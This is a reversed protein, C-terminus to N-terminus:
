PSPVIRKSPIEELRGSQVLAQHIMATVEARTAPQNPKLSSLNFDPRNVVLGAETAAAIQNKAWEPLRDADDYRKLTEEVNQVPQLDLGSALAVLVQYRPIDEEPRFINGSYGRMFGSRVATDIATAVESDRAVDTFNITESTPQREFAQGILSAMEARTIPQDPEFTDDSSGKVLQQAALAAIFPRAWYDNPVDKFAFGLETPSKAPTSPETEQSTTAKPTTPTGNAEPPITTPPTAPTKTTERGTTTPLLILPQELISRPSERRSGTLPTTRTLDAQRRPQQELTAPSPTRAVKEQTLTTSDPTATTQKTEETPALIKQWQQSILGVRRSGFSWCLIAGITGFAVILAVMEDFDLIPKRPPPSQPPESPSFNTM